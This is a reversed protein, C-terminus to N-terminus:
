PSYLEKEDNVNNVWFSHCEDISDFRTNNIFNDSRSSPRPEYHFEGDKGLVWEQMKLVWKRSGDIQDRSEIDVPRNHFICNGLDFKTARELWEDKSMM